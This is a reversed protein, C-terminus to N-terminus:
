ESSMLVLGASFNFTETSYTNGTWHYDTSNLMRVFTHGYGGDFLEKQKSFYLSVPSLNAQQNFSRRESLNPNYLATIKDM